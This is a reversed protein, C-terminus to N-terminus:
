KFVIPARGGKYTGSYSAAARVNKIAAAYRRRSSINNQTKAINFNNNTRQCYIDPPNEACLPLTWGSYAYYTELKYLTRIQACSKGCGPPLPISFENKPALYTKGNLLVNYVVNYSADPAPPTYPHQVANWSFAAHIAARGVKEYAVKYNNPIEWNVDVTQQSSWDSAAM